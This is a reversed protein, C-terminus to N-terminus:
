CVCDVYLSFFFKRVITAGLSLKPALNKFLKVHESHVMRQMEQSETLFAIDEYFFNIKMLFGLENKM